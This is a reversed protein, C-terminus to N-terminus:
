LTANIQDMIKLYSRRLRKVNRKETVIEFALEGNTKGFLTRINEQSDELSEVSRQATIIDGLIDNASEHLTSLRELYDLNIQQKVTQM